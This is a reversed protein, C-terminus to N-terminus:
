STRGDPSTWTAHWTAPGVVGDVTLGREAQFALCAERSRKDYAGTVPTDWGRQRMRRQWVRVGPHVTRPPWTFLVGPWYPAAAPDPAAGASSVSTGTTPATWSAYWTREGVVGDVSLGNEEQFALCVRRSQEGYAGDVTITWGRDSMRQQWTRASSHRTVPPYHLLVGPWVPVGPPPDTPDPPGDGSGPEMASLYASLKGPCETALFSSHGTIATAANGTSRLRAIATRFGQVLQDTITDYSGPTGGVLGCVAYFRDNSDTTGNAATRIGVGRGEYVFGHVCVLYTYAIDDWQKDDMHYNQIGRVQSPCEAHDGAAFRSAGTHHVAVGGRAPDIDTSRKKPSRAGWESRTVFGPM